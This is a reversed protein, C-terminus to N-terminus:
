KWAAFASHCHRILEISRFLRRADELNALRPELCLSRGPQNRARENALMQPEAIM